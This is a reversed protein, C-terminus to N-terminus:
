DKETKNLFLSKMAFTMKLLQPSWMAQEVDILPELTEEIKRKSKLEQLYGFLESHYPMLFGPLGRQAFIFARGVHSLKQLM